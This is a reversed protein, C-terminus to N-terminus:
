KLIGGTKNAVQFWACCYRSKTKTTLKNATAATNDYGTRQREM